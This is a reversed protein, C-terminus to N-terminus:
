RRDADGRISLGPEVAASSPAALPRTTLRVGRGPHYYIPHGPDLGTVGTGYPTTTPAAPKQAAVTRALSEEEERREAERLLRDQRLREYQCRITACTQAASPPDNGALDIDLKTAPKARFTAPPRETYHTVGRDDVWKYVQAIGSASSVCLSLTILSALPRIFWRVM